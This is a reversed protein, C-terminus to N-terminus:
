SSGPASPAPSPNSLANEIATGLDAYSRLQVEEGNVFFTPTGQVGLATGDAIDEQIRDLTAPSNYAEDWAAM